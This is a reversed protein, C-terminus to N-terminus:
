DSDELVAVARVPSGSGGRIKLPLCIFLFRRNLLEPPIALNETNLIKRDRCVMHAPNRPPTEAPTRRDISYADTGINNVGRDALWEAAERDLGAFMGFDAPNTKECQGTYFLVADGVRIEQGSRALVAELDARSIYGGSPIHSVDLCIASSYFRELPIEDIGEAGPRPDIHRFADVHTACHDSLILGMTMYSFEDSQLLAASEEHTMHTWVVPSIQSGPVPRRHYIEQSLDLIRM